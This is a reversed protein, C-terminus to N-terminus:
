ISDDHVLVFRFESFITRYEEFESIVLEPQHEQEIRLYEALLAKGKEKMLVWTDSNADDQKDFEIHFSPTCWIFPVVPRESARLLAEQDYTM